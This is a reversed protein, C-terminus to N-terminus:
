EDISVLFRVNFVFFKRLNVGIQLVFYSRVLEKSPKNSKRRPTRVSATIMCNMLKDLKDKFLCCFSLDIKCRLLSM